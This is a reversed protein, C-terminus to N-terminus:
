SAVYILLMRLRSIGYIYIYICIEYKGKEEMINILNDSEINYFHLNVRHYIRNNTFPYRFFPFIKIKDIRSKVFYVYM